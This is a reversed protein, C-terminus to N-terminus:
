CRDLNWNNCIVQSRKRSRNSDTTVSESTSAHRDRAHIVSSYARQFRYESDMRFKCLGYRNRISRDTDICVSPDDTYDRFLDTVLDRYDSLEKDRHPYIYLVCTKWADFCLTWDTETVVAKKEKSQNKKVIAFEGDGISVEKGDNFVTKPEIDAHISEFDVYQDLVVKKVSSPHLPYKSKLQRQLLRDVVSQIVKEGTITKKIEWTKEIIPDACPTDTDALYPAADLVAKPIEPLKGGTFDFLRGFDISDGDSPEPPALLRKRLEAWAALEALEEAKRRELRAENAAEAESQITRSSGSGSQRPPNIAAFRQKAEIIYVEAERTTVGSNSLEDFLQSEQLEGAVFLNVANQCRQARLRVIEPDPSSQSPGPSAPDPGPTTRDASNGQIDDTM